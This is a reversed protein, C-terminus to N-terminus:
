PRRSINPMSMPALSSPANQSDKRHESFARPRLPTSSAMESAWWLRGRRFCPSQLLGDGRHNGSGTPLPASRVEHGVQQTPHGLSGLRAHGGHHAGDVLLERRFLDVGLGIPHDSLQLFVEGLRGLHQRFGYGVDQGEGGERHRM